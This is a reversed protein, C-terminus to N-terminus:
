EKMESGSESDGDEESGSMDEEDDEDDDDDDDEDDGELGYTDQFDALQKVQVKFGADELDKKLGDTM